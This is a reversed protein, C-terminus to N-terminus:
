IRNRIDTLSPTVKRNHLAWQAVNLLVAKAFNRAGETRLRKASQMALAILKKAPRSRPINLNRTRDICIVESLDSIPTNYSLKQVTEKAWRLLSNKEQDTLTTIKAKAVFVALSNLDCGVAYRHRAYAEVITTGGGMYPDLVVQGPKTFHEIVSAVFAPSFRAPYRYFDHTLGKVPTRDAAAARISRVTFIPLTTHQVAM